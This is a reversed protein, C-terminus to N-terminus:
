REGRTLRDELRRLESVAYRVVSGRGTRKLRYLKAWARFTTKGVGFYAAAETVSLYAKGEWVPAVIPQETM